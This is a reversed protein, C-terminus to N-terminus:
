KKTMNKIITITAGCVDELDDYEDMKESFDKKSKYDGLRGKKLEQFDKYTDPFQHKYKELFTQGAMIIGLREGKSIFKIGDMTPWGKSIIAAENEIRSLESIQYYQKISILSLIVFFIPYLVRYKTEKFHKWEDKLWLFITLISSITTIYFWIMNM